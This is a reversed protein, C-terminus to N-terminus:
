QLEKSKYYIILRKKVICNHNLYHVGWNSTVEMLGNYYFDNLINAFGYLKNPVVCFFAKDNSTFFDMGESLFAELHRMSALGSKTKHQYFYILEIARLLKEKTIPLKNM